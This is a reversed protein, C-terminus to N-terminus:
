SKINITDANLEILQASLIGIGDQQFSMASLGAEVNIQASLLGTSQHSSLLMKGQVTELQCDGQCSLRYNKKINIAINNEATIALRKGININVKKLASMKFDDGAHINLHNDTAMLELSKGDINVAGDVSMNLSAESRFAIDHGAELTIHGNQSHVSMSAANMEGSFSMCQEQQSTEIILSPMSKDDNMLLANKASTKIVHHDPFVDTIPNHQAEGYRAGIIFPKDVHGEMRAILVETQDLLPFHMGFDNGAYPSSLPVAYSNDAASRNPMEFPQIHYKGQDNIALAEDYQVLALTLYTVRNSVSETLKEPVANVPKMKLRHEYAIDNDQWIHESEEIRYERNFSTTPHDELAFVDHPHLSLVNSVGYFTKDEGEVANFKLTQDSAARGPLFPFSVMDPRHHKDEIYVTTGFVDSKFYYDLNMQHIMRQFFDVDSCQHQEVYEHMHDSLEGKWQLSPLLRNMLERIKINSFSRSRYAHKMGCLPSEGKVCLSHADGGYVTVSTIIVRFYREIGAVKSWLVAKKGMLSSPELLSDHKLYFEGWYPRSIKEHIRASIINFSENDITFQINNSM